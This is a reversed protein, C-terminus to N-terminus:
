NAELRRMHVECCVNKGAELALLTNEYHHSHPTAVYIIQVNEDKVLEEYSGYTKCSDAKPHGIQKVFEGARQASSSSAVAVVSHKVDKVDRTSPEVLLDKAFKEAIGGTALIGWKCEYPSSM